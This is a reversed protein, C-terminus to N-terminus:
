FLECLDKLKINSINLSAQADELMILCFPCSTVLLNSISILEKLRLINIKTTNPNDELWMHGGGGGCCFTHTYAHKPDHVKLGLSQLIQRPEKYINNFRALYCSDHYVCNQNSYTNSAIKLRGDKILKDLFETYHYVKAKFGFDPYEHKLTNYCHPCITIIKQINYKKFTNINETILMQALYENGLRRATEGTCKEEKGLIAFKINARQLLKTFALVVKQVRKDFAGACGVWFLYEFPNGSKQHLINIELGQIWDERRDVGFPWPSYNNELNKFMINLSNPFEAKTLTLYRRMELIPVLHEIELPCSQTCAGCFTCAWLTEDSIKNHPIIMNKSSSLHKMKSYEQLSLKLDKMLKRPDLPKNSINAPCNDVCRGCEVCCYADLMTKFTFTSIHGSGFVEDDDRFVMPRIRGKPKLNELFLTFWVWILHQHKSYPIFILFGLFCSYHVWWTIKNFLSLNIINEPLWYSLLRSVLMYSSDIYGLKISIAYYILSSSVLLLILLLVLFADLKAQLDLNVLRKPTFVLRRILLVVIAIFVLFNTGDQIMNIINIITSNSIINKYSFSPLFVSIITELTGFSVIIFGLFIIYHMIGSITYKFVKKQFLAKYIMNLLRVTTNNTRNEDEGQAICLNNYTRFLSLVFIIISSLFLCIFLIREFFSLTM